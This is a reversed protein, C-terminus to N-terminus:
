SIYPWGLFGVNWFDEDFPIFEHYDLPQDELVGLQEGAHLIAPSQVDSSTPEDETYASLCWSRLVQIMKVFTSFVNGQSPPSDNMERELKQSIKDLVAPLDVSRRVYSTDWAHDDLSALRILALVVTRFQKWLLFPFGVYDEAEFQLITAVWLKVADLCKLLHHITQLDPDASVPADHVRLLILENIVIETHAAMTQFIKNTKIHSPAPDRVATLEGNISALYPGIIRTSEETKTDSIQLAIKMVKSTLLQFRILYVLLKDGPAENADELLKLCDDLYPSWTLSEIRGHFTAASSTLLYCALVTRRHENTRSEPVRIKGLFQPPVARPAFHQIHSSKPERKQLELDLTMATCLHSFVTLLPGMSFRFHGWAILCLLGLLLDLTRRGEVVVERAAIERVARGLVNQQTGDICSVAMICLWLFPRQQRLKQATIDHGIHMIPLLNLYRTRFLEVYAEAEGPPIEIEQPLAYPDSSSTPVMTDHSSPQQSSVSADASVMRADETRGTDVLGRGGTQLLSVLGDLKQELRAARSARPRRQRVTPSPICEKKLRICRECGEGNNRLLCKCKARACNVCARGYPAARRSRSEM